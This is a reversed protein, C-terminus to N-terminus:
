KAAVEAKGAQGGEMRAKDVEGFAVASKAEGAGHVTVTEYKVRDPVRKTKEKKTYFPMFIFFGFYIVSFIQAALTRGPSPALAGLYGLAVFSIAFLVLALKWTWSRYRISKVKCRDLWPLFFLVVISLGMAIVGLLKDPVARLIAYYPTFYWVPAIHEPTAMTNAPEFNAHELFYGGMEPAFFVVFSFIMLFVIIAVLDKSTHYPHFAVGDKPVGNEDKNEKIEIGDP